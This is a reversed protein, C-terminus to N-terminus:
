RCHPCKRLSGKWGGRRLVEAVWTATRCPTRFVLGFTLRATATGAAALEALDRAADHDRSVSSSHFVYGDLEVVLGYEAYAVDQHTRRGTAESAHQRRARPLGHARELDRYGRELVSCVGDRVDALMAAILRRGTMRQRKGLADLIREVTTHRSQIVQALVAFAAAVDGGRCHSAVVDLVAHEVRQRPPSRQWQVQESLQSRCSVDVWEPVRVRRGREIAIHVRGPAPSPLASEGALAAPWAALVAVWERQRQTLPGTHDAFVGRHIRRLERRRLLRELDHHRAGAAVLQRRSIVGDQATLTEHVTGVALTFRPTM